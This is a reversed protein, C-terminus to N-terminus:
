NTEASRRMPVVAGREAPPTACHIAWANMLRRRKEFLDGRRYDAELKDGVVHAVVEYTVM